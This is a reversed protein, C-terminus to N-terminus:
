GYNGGYGSNTPPYENGDLKSRLFGPPNKLKEEQRRTYVLWAEVRETDTRAAYQQALNTSFYRGLADALDFGGLREFVAGLRREAADMKGIREREEPTWETGGIKLAHDVSFRVTEMQNTRSKLWRDFDGAERIAQKLFDEITSLRYGDTESEPQYTELIIQDPSLEISKLENDSFIVDVVGGGVVDAECAPAPTHEHGHGHLATTTPASDDPASDHLAKFHQIPTLKQDLQPTSTDVKPETQTQPTLKQDLQPTLKQDLKPTSTDVKPETSNENQDTEPMMEASAAQQRTLEKASTADAPTLPDRMRIRGALSQSGRRNDLSVFFQELIPTKLTRRLTQTSIGLAARLETKRMSFADRVEDKDAYCHRRIYVVLWAATAGLEPLWKRRFYQTELRVQNPQLL